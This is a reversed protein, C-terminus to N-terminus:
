PKERLRYRIARRQMWRVAFVDVFGVFLRNRIGYKSEGFRRPRHSVPIEVLRAGEMKLLTPLFRHMGDYLKLRRLYSTRIARLSCGVDTVTEGTMRNRFGNALKSSIRRVWTDRRNVRVGNVVDAHDTEALLRPIDQPDNQLDADLTVTFEGRAARFGADFAASQGHNGELAIPRVRPDKEALEAIKQASGDVSGDDVFIFECGGEVGGLAADLERYLPDLSGEENYVPVVISVRLSSEIATM